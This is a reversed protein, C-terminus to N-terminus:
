ASRNRPGGASWGRASWTRGGGRPRPAAPQGLAGRPGCGARRGPPPQSADNRPLLPRPRAVQAGRDLRCFLAAGGLRPLCGRGALRAAPQDGGPHRPEDDRPPRAPGLRRPSRPHAVPRQELFGGFIERLEPETPPAHCGTAVAIRVDPSSWDCDLLGMLWPTPTARQADNVVVLLPGDPVPVSRPAPLTAAAALAPRGGPSRDEMGAPLERAHGGGGRAAGQTDRGDIAAHRVTYRSCRRIALRPEPNNPMRSPHADPIASATM